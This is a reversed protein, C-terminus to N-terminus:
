DASDDGTWNKPRMQEFRPQGEAFTSWSIESATFVHAEPKVSEPDDLTAIKLMTREPFNESQGLIHSGCEPCFFRHYRTGDEIPTAIEKLKGEVKISDAPMAAEACYPAAHAKRCQTCHCYLTFVPPETCSYKVQGCLCSGSLIAESM